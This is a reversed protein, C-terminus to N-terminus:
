AAADQAKARQEPDFRELRKLMAVMECGIEHIGQCHCCPCRYHADFELRKIFTQCDRLLKSNPEHDRIKEDRHKM